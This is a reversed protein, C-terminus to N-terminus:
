SSPIFCGVATTTVLRTSAGSQLANNLADRLDLRTAIRRRKGYDVFLDSIRGRYVIRGNPMVVVAEPTVRAGARKAITRQPDIFISGPLRYERAHAQAQALNQTDEYVFRFEIGRPAFAAHLRSMEPAYANSIPCDRALFILATAKKGRAALSTQARSVAAKAVPQVAIASSFDLAAACLVLTVTRIISFTRMLSVSKLSRSYERLLPTNCFV